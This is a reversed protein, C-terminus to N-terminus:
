DDWFDDFLAGAGEPVAEEEVDELMDRERAQMYMRQRTVATAALTESYRPQARAGPPGSVAESVAMARALQEDSMGEDASVAAGTGGGTGAGAGTGSGTGAAAAKEKAEEEEAKRAAEREQKTLIKLAKEKRRPYSSYTSPRSVGSFQYQSRTVGGSPANPLAIPARKMAVAEAHSLEKTPVTHDSLMLLHADRIFMQSLPTTHTNCRLWSLEPLEGLAPPRLPTAFSLDEINLGLESALRVTLEQITDERRVHLERIASVEWRARDWWQAVLLIDGPKTTEPEPLVEVALEMGEYIHVTDRMKLVEPFVTTAKQGPKHRIRICRLDTGDELLGLERLRPALLERVDATTHSEKMRLSFISDYTGPEPGAMKAKTPAHLADKGSSESSPGDEVLVIATSTSLPVGEVPGPLSPATAGNSDAAPPEAPAAGEDGKSEDNKSESGSTGTGSM